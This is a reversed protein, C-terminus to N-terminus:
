ARKERLSRKYRLVKTMDGTRAAEARLRELTSDVTGSTPANGAPVSREPPPPSAKSVRLKAELKAVAFSFKVPDTISGLEKAKRPNKGLAYVVLAPDDAGSLIVGQQIVSLSEQVVAEADEYDDAQLRDKAQGYSNLKSQWARQAEEQAAEHQRKVYEYQERKQYWAELSAEYRGSDYEFDELRPKAGPHQIPALQSREREEYEKVRRTLERHQKRLDKVWDPAPSSDDGVVVEIVEQEPAAEQTEDQQEEEELGQEESVVEEQEVIEEQVESEANM